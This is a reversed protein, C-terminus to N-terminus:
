PIKADLDEVNVKPHAQKFKQLQRAAEAYDKRAILKEIMLLWDEVPIPAFEQERKAESDAGSASTGQDQMLDEQDSRYASGNLAPESRGPDLTQNQISEPKDAFGESSSKRNREMTPMNEIPAIKEAKSPELMQEELQQRESSYEPQVKKLAKEKSPLTVTQSETALDDAPSEDMSFGNISSDEETAISEM